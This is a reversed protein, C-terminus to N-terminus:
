RSSESQSNFRKVQKAYEGDDIAGYDRQQKLWALHERAPDAEVSTEQPRNGVRLDAEKKREVVADAADALGFAIARLYNHSDIPLVLKERGQLMQEIAATWVAPTAPRRVGGREDRCVNPAKVLDLLQQVLKVARATRLATKRPKFLRLYAIVARGLAPEFEVFLAALRKGDADAFGADIPFETSCCPCTLQM